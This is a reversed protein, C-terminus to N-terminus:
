SGQVQMSSSDRQECREDERRRRYERDAHGSTAIARRGIARTGARAILSRTRGGAIRFCVLDSLLLSSLGSEHVIVDGNRTDRVRGQRLKALASRLSRLPKDEQLTNRTSGIM